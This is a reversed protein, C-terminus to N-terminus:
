AEGRAPGGSLKPSSRADRAAPGPRSGSQIKDTGLRRRLSLTTLRLLRSHGHVSRNRQHQDMTGPQRAAAPLVVGVVETLAAEGDRRRLPRALLAIDLLNAGRRLLRGPEADLLDDVVVRGQDALELLRGHQDAVGVAAQEDLQQEVATEAAGTHRHARRGR